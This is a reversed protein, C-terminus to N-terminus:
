PQVPRGKGGHKEASLLYQILNHETVGPLPTTVPFATTCLILPARGGVEEIAQAVQRDIEEPEAREIADLQINGMLIMDRGVRDALERLPIDGSPPPECPDTMDVGMALMDDVIRAIPGHCHYRVFGGHRHILDILPRDRDVVVKKFFKPSMMPPAAYEPGFFRFVPGFGAELLAQLWLAILESARDLLAEVRVPDQLARVMFQDYPMNEVVLCLPTPTEIEMLGSEGLAERTRRFTDLDPPNPVFPASLFRDIDEDTKMLPEHRWVTRMGENETYNATLDGRPTHLNLHYHTAGGEVRVERDLADPDWLGLVDTVGFSAYYSLHLVFIHDYRDTFELVRHFSPDRAMWEHSFRDVGYTTAPVYELRRERLMTLLATRRSPASSIGEQLEMM